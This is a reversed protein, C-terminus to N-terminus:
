KKKLKYFNSNPITQMTKNDGFTGSDGMRGTKASPPPAKYNEIQKSKSSTFTTKTEGFIKMTGDVAHGAAKFFAKVHKEM